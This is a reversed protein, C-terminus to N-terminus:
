GTRREACRATLERAWNWAEAVRFSRCEHGLAEAFKATAAETFTVVGDSGIKEIGDFRQASENIAMASQLSMGPPPRVVVAERNIEVPFGGVLGCPGPAHLRSVNAGILAWTLAVVSSAAVLTGWRRSQRRYRSALLSFVREAPLDQSNEGRGVQYSLHFPAGGADGASHIRHSVFHHMVMWISVESPDVFLEDSITRRIGPENNAINGAGILPGRGASELAPNVADPYAVNVVLLSLGSQEVARMLRDALALQAPLWPGLGAEALLTQSRAPLASIAAYPQMTACHVVVDPKLKRLSEATADVHELDIPACEVRAVNGTMQMVSLVAVNANAHLRSADRGGVIIEVGGGLRVLGYLIPFGLDGVGILLIRPRVSDACGRWRSKRVTGTEERGKDVIGRRRAARGSKGAREM